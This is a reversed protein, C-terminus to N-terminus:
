APARVQLDVVADWVRHAYAFSVPASRERIAEVRTPGAHFAALAFDIDGFREILRYYRPNTERWVTQLRGTGDVHTIAPIVHRKEPRVDVVYLMFRAPYHRAAGPLDFFEETRGVLASPAFPRHQRDGEDREAQPGGPHLPPGPRAPGM